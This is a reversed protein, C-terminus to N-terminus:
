ACISAGIERQVRARKNPPGGFLFACERQHTARPYSVTRFTIQNPARTVWRHMSAADRCSINSSRPWSLINQLNRTAAARTMAASRVLHYHVYQTYWFNQFRHQDYIQEWVTNLPHVEFLLACSWNEVDGCGIQKKTLVDSKICSYLFACFAQCNVFLIFLYRFCIRTSNYQKFIGHIWEILRHFLKKLFNVNKSRITEEKLNELDPNDSEGSSSFESIKLWKSRLVVICVSVLFSVLRFFLLLLIFQLIYTSEWKVYELIKFCEYLLTRSLLIFHTTRRVLTLM